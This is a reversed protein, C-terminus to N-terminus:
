RNGLPRLLASLAPCTREFDQLQRPPKHQAVGAAHRLLGALGLAPQADPALQAGGRVVRPALEGRHAARWWGPQNCPM